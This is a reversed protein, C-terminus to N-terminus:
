DTHVNLTLNNPILNNYNNNVKAWVIYFGYKEKFFKFPTM